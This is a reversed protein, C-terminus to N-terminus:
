VKEEDLGHKFFCMIPKENGDEDDRFELIGLIGDPNNSEGPFHFFKILCISAVNCCM